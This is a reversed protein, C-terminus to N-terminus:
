RALYDMIIKDTELLKQIFVATDIDGEIPAAKLPETKVVRRKIRTSAKSYVAGM